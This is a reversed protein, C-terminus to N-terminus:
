DAKPLEIWFRSGQGHGSELGLKGGMREIGKRVISLGIGTGPYRTGNLREFVRFVREHEREPIGIGNDALWLRVWSGRDEAWFRIAPQAGPAVFKLANSLLNALCQALTAEHSRVRPLPKATELHAQIQEIQTVCQFCADDWAAQVEVPGLEIEARAARGFALLDLLLKDMFESSAQIRKLLHQASKELSAAHDEALL